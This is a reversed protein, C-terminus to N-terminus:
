PGLAHDDDREIGDGGAAARRGVVRRVEVDSGCVQQVGREAIREGLVDARQGVGVREDREGARVSPGAGAMGRAVRLRVARSLRDLGQGVDEDRGLVGRRDALDGLADVRGGGGGKKKKKKQPQQSLDEVAAAVGHVALEQAVHEEGALEGIREDLEALGVRLAPDVLM